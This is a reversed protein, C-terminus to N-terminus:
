CCPDYGCPPPYYGCGGSDGAPGTAGQPGIPGTAGQAGTSGAIGQLGQPGEPGAPGTPGPPGVPFDDTVLTSALNSQVGRGIIEGAGNTYEYNMYAENIIAEGNPANFPVQVQYTAYITGGPPISIPLYVGSYLTDDPYNIGNIYLSGPVMPYYRGHPYYDNLYINTIPYPNPNTFDLVYTLVDGPDAFTQSVSKNLTNGDQIFVYVSSSNTSLTGGTTPDIYYFFAYNSNIGYADPAILTQYTITYGAGPALNGIVTSSNTVVNDAAPSNNVTVSGPVLILYSSTSDYLRVNQMASATTNTLTITFTVVDGPHPNSNSLTKTIPIIARPEALPGIVAPDTQRAALTAIQWIEAPSFERARNDNQYSM